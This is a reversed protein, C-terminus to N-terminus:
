YRKMKFGTVKLVGNKGSFSDFSDIGVAVYNINDNPSKFLPLYLYCEYEMRMGDKGRPVAMRFRKEKIMEGDKQFCKLTLNASNLGKLATLSLHVKIWREHRIPFMAVGLEAGMKATVTDLKTVIIQTVHCQSEDGLLEDTDLLSYDLPTPNADLYIAAYYRANMQDYHLILENYQGIQFLNVGILYTGLGLIAWRKWHYYTRELFAALALAFVPYSQVLARTSYSAGYRWDSWSIVIWINLLCFTLVARRYPKEKMFFLGIVMFLAIPTYIFWGKEFGILVRWWPNLFFWKSGVDYIWSGTAQKWYILQPLIGITGGLMAWLVHKKNSRVLAWKSKLKGSNELSWLIPIFIIILETPRSITALGAVLGIFLATNIKPSEHWRITLWLMLAYLPFIFAHSMAGDVSVYQLANSALCILLLTLTTITESYFRLLVKRLILCGVFFWFLAGFVIAYQYPWSFGDQPAGSFYAITHGIYFFPLEMIAVGGLYKFAYGGKELQTAQYLQGGSVNYTSDIAPFWKLETVDDYILYGPLYMYYGLADWTTANYGNKADNTFHNFRIVLSVLLIFCCALFSRSRITSQM